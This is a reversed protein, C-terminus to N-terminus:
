PIEILFRDSPFVEVYLTEVKDYYSFCSSLLFLLSILFLNKIMCFMIYLFFGCTSMGASKM